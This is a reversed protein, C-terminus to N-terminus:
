RFPVPIDIEGGGDEHPPEIGDMEFVPLLIRRKWESVYGDVVEAPLSLENHVYM